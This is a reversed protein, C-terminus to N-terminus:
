GPSPAYCRRVLLGSLGLIMLVTGSPEPVVSIMINQAASFLPANYSSDQWRWPSSSWFFDSSGPVTAYAPMEGNGSTGFLGTGFVVGYVGPSLNISFPITIIQPTPGMTASFTRYALIEGPNFPVGSGPTGTPLASMSALPVLAAFYSGSSGAYHQFEGRVSALTVPTSFQFRAGFFQFPDLAYAVGAAPGIPNSITQAPAQPPLFLLLSIGALQSATTKM